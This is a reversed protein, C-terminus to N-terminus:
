TAFWLLVACWYATSISVMMVLSSLLGMREGYRSGIFSEKLSYYHFRYLAHTECFLTSLIYRNAQGGTLPKIKCLM